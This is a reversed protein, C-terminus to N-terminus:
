FGSIKYYWKGDTQHSVNILYRHTMAWFQASQIEKDELCYYFSHEKKDLAEKVQIDLSYHLSPIPKKKKFLSM